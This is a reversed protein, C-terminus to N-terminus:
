TIFLNTECCFWHLKHLIAHNVLQFIGKIYDLQNVLLHRQFQIQIFFLVM